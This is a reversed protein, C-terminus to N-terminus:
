VDEGEEYYGLLSCIEGVLEPCAQFIRDVQFVSEECDVRHEEIWNACLTYLEEAQQRSM